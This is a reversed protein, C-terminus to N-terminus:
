LDGSEVRAVFAQLLANFEEPREMNLLHSVGDWAHYELRLAVRRVFTENEDDEWVAPDWSAQASGLLVHQPTALTVAKLREHDAAPLGPAVKPMQDMMRVMVDRYDPQQLPAALQKLQELPVPKIAGDVAVLGETRHPYLRYFQRVVMVGMSHGVLVARELELEDLVAAVSRAFLNMTYPIEPADSEGHGILDVAVLRRDTEVGDMQRYWHSRDGSWGHVFVIADDSTGRVEYAVQSGDLDAAGARESM